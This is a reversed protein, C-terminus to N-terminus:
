YSTALQDKFEMTEKMDNNVFRQSGYTSNHIAIPYTGTVYDLTTSGNVINDFMTFNYMTGLIEHPMIKPEKVFNIKFAHHTAKYQGSNKEVEFNLIVYTQGVQFNVNEMQVDFNKM